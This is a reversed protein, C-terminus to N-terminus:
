KNNKIDDLLKNLKDFSEFDEKTVFLIKVNAEKARFLKLQMNEEHKKKSVYQPKESIQIAINSYKGLLLADVSVKLKTRDNPKYPINNEKLWEYLKKYYENLENQMDIEVYQGLEPYKLFYSPSLRKTGIVKALEMKTVLRGQAKAWEILKEGDKVYLEGKEKSDHRLKVNNKELIRKISTAYTNFEKAIRNMSQGNKYACVIKDEERSYDKYLTDAQSNDQENMVTKEAKDNNEKINSMNTNNSTTFSSIDLIGLNKCNYFMRRKSMVNFTNFNSLNLEELRECEEFMSDMYIVNSTDFSSLDLTKLNECRGFMYSMETVNSTDFNSLNLEELRKCGVFMNNMNIVNSTDFSSLDLTKLNECRGFMYSMETVNSSNFNSLNLEELRKCDGFMSSMDVVNSYDLKRLDLKKVRELGQFCHTMFYDDKSVIIEDLIIVDKISKKDKSSIDGCKYERILQKEKDIYDYSSFILTGDEYLRVYATTENNQAITRKYWRLSSFVRECSTKPIKYNEYLQVESMNELMQITINNRFLKKADKLRLGCQCLDFISTRTIDSINNIVNLVYEYCIIKDYLKELVEPNQKIDELSYKSEQIVVVDHIDVGYEYLIGYFKTKNNIKIM